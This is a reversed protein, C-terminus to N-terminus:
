TALSSCHKLMGILPFSIKPHIPAWELMGKTGRFIPPRNQRWLRREIWTILFAWIWWLYLNIIGRALVSLLIQYIHIYIYIDSPLRGAPKVCLARKGTDCAAPTLHPLSLCNAGSARPALSSNAWESLPGKAASNVDGLTSRLSQWTLDGEGGPLLRLITVISQANWSLDVLGYCGM